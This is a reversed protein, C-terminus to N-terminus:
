DQDEDVEVEDEDGDDTGAFPFGANTFNAGTMRAMRRLTEQQLAGVIGFM